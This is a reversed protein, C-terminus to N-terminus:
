STQTARTSVPQDLNDLDLDFDLGALTANMTAMTASMSALTTRTEEHFASLLCYRVRTSSFTSAKDILNGVTNVFEGAQKRKNSKINGSVFGAIGVEGSVETEGIVKLLGAIVK